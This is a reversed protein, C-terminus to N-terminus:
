GCFDLELQRLAKLMIKIDKRKMKTSDHVLAVIARENLGTKLIKELTASLVKIEAALNAKKEKRAQKTTKKAKKKDSITKAMGLEELRQNLREALRPSATITTGSIVLPTLLSDLYDNDWDSEPRAKVDV